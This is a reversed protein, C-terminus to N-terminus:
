DHACLRRMRTHARYKASPAASPEPRSPRSPRCAPALESQEFGSRFWGAGQCVLASRQVNRGTCPETRARATGISADSARHRRVVQARAKRAAVRCGANPLARCVLMKTSRASQASSPPGRAADDTDAAATVTSTTAHSHIADVLGAKAGEFASYPACPSPAPRTIASKRDSAGRVAM